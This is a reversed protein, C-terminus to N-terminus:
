FHLSYDAIAAGFVGNYVIGVIFPQIFVKPDAFRVVKSYFSPM